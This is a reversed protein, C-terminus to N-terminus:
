ARAADTAGGLRYQVLTAASTVGVVLILGIWVSSMVVTVPVVGNWGYFAPLSVCALVFVVWFVSYAIISSRRAIEADREDLVVDRRLVFLPGFGLLGLLGFGGQAGRGMVPILALVTVASFVVVALNFWAHKQSANM